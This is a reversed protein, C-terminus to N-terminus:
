LRLDFGRMLQCRGDDLLSGNKERSWKTLIPRERENSRYAVWDLMPM